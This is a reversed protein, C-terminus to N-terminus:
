GHSILLSFSVPCEELEAVVLRLKTVLKAREETSLSDVAQAATDKPPARLDELYDSPILSASLCLQRV